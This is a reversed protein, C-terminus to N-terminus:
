FVQHRLRRIRELVPPHSYELFVMAPHPTLNSLNDICLRKLAFVLDAGCMHTCSAYADAEFEHRRSILNALTGLILELPAYLFAFFFLTAYMSTHEMGFAESLQRNNMFLSLIYFMIGSAAISVALHQIIHGKKWHGVEHALVAVVEGATHKEILTDFLVIRRLRGFGTLFANSKTSRRSGDMTYIGKLRFSQAAAYAEIAAKLEGEPLPTFKNFLPMIVVPAIFIIFIQIFTVAAWCWLWARPGVAQFFWLVLALVPAGIAAGLLLGKTHDAFFTKVTTKNFGYRQEIVFTGYASFPLHLLDAALLLIGSFLLGTAIEAFGFSRAALDVQNFGGLVIFAITLLLFFTDSVFGFRTSDRLYQQSSAYRGAGYWGQFEEPLQPSLARLNLINVVIDVLYTGVLVSLIFVLYGNMVYGTFCYHLFVVRAFESFDLGVAVCVHCCCLM